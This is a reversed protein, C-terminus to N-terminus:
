LVEDAWIGKLDDLKKMLTYKLIKNIAKVHGNSQLHIPVAFDKHIGLDDYFKRTAVNDFQRGNDSVLSHPVRFRFYYLELFFKDM